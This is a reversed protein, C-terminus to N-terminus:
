WTDPRRCDKQDDKDIMNICTCLNRRRMGLCCISTRVPSPGELLSTPWRSSRNRSQLRATEGTPDKRKKGNATEDRPLQDSRPYEERKFRTEREEEEEEEEKEEWM